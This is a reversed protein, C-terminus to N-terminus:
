AGLVHPIAYVQFRRTTATYAARNLQDIVHHGHFWTPKLSVYICKSPLILNSKVFSQRLTENRAATIVLNLEPESAM